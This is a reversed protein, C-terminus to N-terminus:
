LFCLPATLDLLHLPLFIMNFAISLKKVRVRNNLQFSITVNEALNDTSINSPIVVGIIPTSIEVDSESSEYPFLVDTLFLAFYVTVENEDTNNFISIPLEITGTTSNGFREVSEGGNLVITQLVTCMILWIHFYEVQTVLNHVKIYTTLNATHTELSFNATIAIRELSSVIRFM